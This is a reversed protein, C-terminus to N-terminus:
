EVLEGAKLKRGGVYKLLCEQEGCIMLGDIELVDDDPYIECGCVVCYGILQEFSVQPDPLGQSFRDVNVM